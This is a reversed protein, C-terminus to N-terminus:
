KYENEIFIVDKEITTLITTIINIALRHKILYVNPNLKFKRKLYKQLTDYSVMSIFNRKRSTKMVAKYDDPLTALICCLIDDIKNKEILKWSFFTFVAEKLIVRQLKKLYIKVDDTKTM